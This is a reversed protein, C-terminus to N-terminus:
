TASTPAGFQMNFLGYTSSINSDGENKPSQSSLKQINSSWGQQNASTETAEPGIDKNENSNSTQNAPQAANSRRNQQLPQSNRNPPPPASFQMPMPRVVQQMPFAPPMNPKAAMARHGIPQIGQGFRTAQPAGTPPPVSFDFAPPPMFHPMPPPPIHTPPMTNPPPIHTPVIAMPKAMGPQSSPSYPSNSSMLGSHHGSTITITTAPTINGGNNSIATPPRSPPRSTPYRYQNASSGGSSPGMSGGNVGIPHMAPIQHPIGTLFEMQSNTASWTAANSNSLPAGHQLFVTHEVYSNPRSRQNSFFGAGQGFMTQTAPPSNASHPSIFTQTLLEPAGYMVSYPASFGNFVQSNPLNGMYMTSVQSFMNSAIPSQPVAAYNTPHPAMFAGVTDDNISPKAFSHPAATSTTQPQQQESNQPQPKVKAVNPGHAQSLSSHSTKDTPAPQTAHTTENSVSVALLGTAENFEQQGPWFDKVKDLKEKLQAHDANSTDNENVNAKEKESFTTAKDHIESQSSISSNRLSLTSKSQTTEVELDKMKNASNEKNNLSPDIAFDYKEPTTATFTSIETTADIVNLV